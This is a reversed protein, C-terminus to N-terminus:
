KNSSQPFRYQNKLQKRVLDLRYGEPLEKKLKTLVIQSPIAEISGLAMTAYYSTEKSGHEVIEGLLNCIDVGQRRQLIKITKIIISDRFDQLLDKTLKLLTHDALQHAKYQLLELGALRMAESPEKLIREIVNEEIVGGWCALAEIVNINLENENELLNLLFEKAEPQHCLGTAKILEPKAGYKRILDKINEWGEKGLLGLKEAIVLRLENSLSTQYISRLWAGKLKKKGQNNLQKWIADENVKMTNSQLDFSCPSMM